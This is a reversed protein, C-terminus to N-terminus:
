AVMGGQMGGRYFGSGGEVTPPTLVSTAFATGQSFEILGAFDAPIVVATVVGTGSVSATGASTSNCWATGDVNRIIYTVAVSPVADQYAFDGTTTAVSAYAVNSPQTLSPSANGNVNGSGAARNLTATKAAADGSWTLTSPTFTGGGSDTLTITGTYNGGVPTYTFLSSSASAPGRSPGSLSFATASSSFTGAEYKEFHVTTGAVGGGPGWVGVFGASTFPTSSDSRSGISSGNYFLDLTTTGSGSIDVQLIDGDVPHTHAIDAGMQTYTSGATNKFVQIVGTGVTADYRVMYGTTATGSGTTDGNGRIMIGIQDADTLYKFTVKVSYDASPPTWSSWYITIQGGTGGSFVSGFGSLTFNSAPSVLPTWTEGGSSTHSSLNATSGDFDDVLNAM